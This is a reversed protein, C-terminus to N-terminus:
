PGNTFNVDSLYFFRQQGIADNGVLGYSARIKLRQIIDPNWFKENSVVWSGGITPFFGYRHEANFRESGNYGFNGEIFYKSKYGYTLRGALGLNRFPLSYQLTTTNTKPDRQSSYVTQQVTGIL